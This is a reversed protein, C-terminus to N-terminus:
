QADPAGAKREQPVGATGSGQRVGDGGRGEASAWTSDPRVRVRLRPPRRLGCSDLARRAAAAVASRGTEREGFALQARVMLRRRGARVTATSIGPVDEVADRVLLAVAKRDVAARVQATSTVVTLLGRRGPSVALAVMLIGLAALTGAGIGVVTDDPGHRGLRSVVETRWSAASRHALHVLVMDYALAGCATAAALALLAMPLRRPSWWRMPTRPGPERAPVADDAAAPTTTTRSTQVPLLGDVQVRTPGVHLGTLEHTRRTVHDQVRQVTQPLPAPFPLALKVAVDARRGRVTASSEASAALVPEAEGAARRAIKRVARDSLTTTGREAAATM